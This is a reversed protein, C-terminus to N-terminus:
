IAAATAEATEVRLDRERDKLKQLQKELNAAEKVASATEKVYNTVAAAAEVFPEALVQLKQGFSKTLEEQEKKVEGLQKRLESADAGFFEKAGIAASIFGEKLKLLLIQFPILAADRLTTLYDGFAILRDRLGEVAEQPNKLANVLNDVIWTGADIITNFVAGLGALAVNLVDAVKKNEAFKQALKAVLAVILGIGTAKLATGIGKFASSGAKGMKSLGKGSKKAAKGVGELSKDVNGVSKEVAKTAKELDGTDADFELIVQQKTVNAM